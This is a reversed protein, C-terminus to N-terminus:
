IQELAAFIHDWPVIQPSPYREPEHLVRVGCSRLVEISKPFAPHRVLDMKLCPVAIIPLYLVHEKGPDLRSM